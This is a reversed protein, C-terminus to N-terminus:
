QYGELSYGEFWGQTKLCIKVLILMIPVEILVGVVTVLTAGSNLGFLSIAVAVALEFFNSAGIMSAPAAISYPVRALKAMGYGIAYITFTQVSLPVAILAIHLPNAIIKDGQYVFLLVLTLLLGGITVNKLRVLLKKEFWEFGKKKIVYSRSWYGFFLPIAVFLIVSFFLTDYPISINGVGMLFAVIPTFLILIILDNTAVQMLTYTPDGKALYSWVFVMATCPAAGLLIAGAIYENGLSGIIDSFLIKFFLYVFFYMTFPKIAWNVIWTIILGKPNRGIYKIRSFDIQLMMPYIMIWILVAVPISIHAYEMKNLFEQTAPFKWGIITGVSMCILVWLTLYKEFVGIKKESEM